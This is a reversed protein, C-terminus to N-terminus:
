LCPLLGTHAGSSQQSGIEEKRPCLREHRVVLGGNAAFQVIGEDNRPSTLETEEETLRQSGRRSGTPAIRNRAGHLRNRDDSVIHVASGIAFGSVEGCCYVFLAGKEPATYM